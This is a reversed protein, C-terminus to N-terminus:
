FHATAGALFNIGPMPSGFREEYDQNLINEIKGGIEISQAIKKLELTYTAAFDMKVYPSLKGTSAVGNSNIFTLATNTGWYRTRVVDVRLQLNLREVPEVDGIFTWRHTPRNPLPVNRVEDRARTWAYSGRLRLWKLPRVDVATEIGMAYADDTGVVDANDFFFNDYDTYFFYVEFLGRKWLDQEIGVSYNQATEKQIGPVFNLLMILPANFTENYSAKLATGWTPQRLVFAGRATLTDEFLTNHDFRFGGSILLYKKYELVNQVYVADNRRNFRQGPQPFKVLPGAYPGNKFSFEEADVDFGVTVRDRFGKQDVPTFVNRFSFRHRYENSRYYQDGVVTGIPIDSTPPNKLRVFQYLLSYDLYSDWWPTAHLEFAIPAVLTDRRMRRNTDRPFYVVNGEVVVDFALQQLSQIYTPTLSISFEPTWQYHWNLNVANQALADNFFRGYQDWRQYAVRLKHNGEGLSFAADEIFRGLNGGHFGTIGHIGEAGKRTIINVVGGVARSGYMGSQAGRVIEVHDIFSAPITGVITPRNDLVTNIPVGDVLVLVEDTDSGRIRINTDDGPAGFSIVDVGLESGLVDSASQAQEIVIDERPVYTIPNTVQDIPENQRDATVVITPLEHENVTNDGQDAEAAYSAASMSMILLIPLLRRM